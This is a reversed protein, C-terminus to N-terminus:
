TQLLWHKYVWSNQEKSQLDLLGIVGFHTTVPVFRSKQVNKGVYSFAQNMWSNETWDIEVVLPSQLNSFQWSQSVVQFWSVGSHWIVSTVDFYWTMKVRTEVWSLNSKKWWPTLWWYKVKSHDHMQFFFRIERVQTPRGIFKSTSCSPIGNRCIEFKSSINIGLYMNIKQMLTVMLM